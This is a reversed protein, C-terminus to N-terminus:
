IVMSSRSMKGDFFPPALPAYAGSTIYLTCNASIAVTSTKPVRPNHAGMTDQCSQFFDRSTEITRSVSLLPPNEPAEEPGFLIERNSKLCFNSRGQRSEHQRKQTGWIIARHGGLGLFRM